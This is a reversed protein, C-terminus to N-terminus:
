RIRPAKTIGYAEALVEIPHKITMPIDAQQLGKSIQMLCGPNGTVVTQAGHTDVATKLHQTKIALIEDALEPHEINYIGASGCCADYEQLPVLSLNPIQALLEQTKSQVGQVHHLHCAAHYCVAQPALNKPFPALPKKSLLESVDIVKESFVKAKEGYVSDNALIQDYHKVTSGCGASNLVIWDVPQRMLGVVNKRALDQTIDTEGAHHALAGCCTQEPVTVYYGNATLVQITAWHIPNFFVDMVCGTMLAVREGSPDGFSMGSNFAKHPPIEPLLIEQQQLSPIIKLLGSKRLVAQLGSQQYFRLLYAGLQLLSANPLISKFIWRKFRRKLSPDNKALAERSAFLLDGYQVGSPCATECAHCALCLDLHTDLQAPDKLEHTHMKKMLYLRGRPSEAESGTVRYTPCAPLCMGCHICANLKELELNLEFSSM